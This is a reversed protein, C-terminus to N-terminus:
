PTTVTAPASENGAADVAIVWFTNPVGPEGYLITMGRGALSHDLVGNLYVDYRIVEQPDVDDTSQEWFLWTEGDQFTMGRDGLNGPTTPPTTDNPDSPETTVTVPDSPPSLNAMFDRAQVRFTHTSEPELLAVIASTDRTGHMIPVGDQFLTYWVLPGDDTASWSLTAHTPGVDTVAVTPKTPPTRDVPLTVSVTNSNKSKNGAADVAYVFFSYSRGAELNGTWTFTTQTQPVTAEYGWSHRVRYIFSGSNDTSPDWALSVTYSTKATVRLNGPATPPKRDAGAAPTSGLLVVIALAAVGATPLTQTRHRQM